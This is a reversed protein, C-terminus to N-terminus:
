EICFFANDIYRFSCSTLQILGIGYVKKFKKVNVKRLSPNLAIDGVGCLDLCYSESLTYLSLSVEFPVVQLEFSYSVDLRLGSCGLTM